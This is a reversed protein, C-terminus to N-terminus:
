CQVVSGQGDKRLIASRISKSYMRNCHLHSCSDHATQAAHWLRWLSTSAQGQLTHCLLRHMTASDLSSSENCFHQEAMQLVCDLICAAATGSSGNAPSIVPSQILKKPQNLQKLRSFRVQGAPGRGGLLLIRHADLMTGSAMECPEPPPGTAAPQHWARAACDFTWLDGLLSERGAGGVVLQVGHTVVASQAPCSDDLLCM